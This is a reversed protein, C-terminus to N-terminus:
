GDRIIEVSWHTDDLVDLEFYKAKWELLKILKLEKTFKKATGLRIIKQNTEEGGRYFNWSVQNTTLDVEVNCYGEFYGGVSARLVKKGDYVAEIAQKKIGSLEVTRYSDGPGGVLM